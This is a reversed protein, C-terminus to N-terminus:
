HHRPVIARAAMVLRVVYSVDSGEVLGGMRGRSGVQSPDGDDGAAMRGVSRATTVVSRGRPRLRRPNM